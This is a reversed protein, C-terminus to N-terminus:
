KSAPITFYFTIGKDLESEAWIKGGHAEVAMKCFTLGLGHGMKAKENEVQVFKDFIKKLYEEPIGEGSDKVQIHFNNDEKNFFTKILVNGGSPSYKIANNVLNAITRRILEKDASMEPMDRTTDLSITKNGIQARFSMQDSVEQVLGELKFKEYNLKLKNEEMKNIDLLNSIMRKLDETATFASNLGKKQEANFESEEMKLLQLEGSIATLPNNLDHVIMHTLSDKLRELAQLKKYSENLRDTYERKVKIFLGILYGMIGCFIAFILSWVILYPKFVELISMLPHVYMAHIKETSLMRSHIIDSVVMAFPSLIVYGFAVGILTFIIIERYKSLSQVKVM